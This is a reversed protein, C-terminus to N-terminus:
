NLITKNRFALFIDSALRHYDDVCYIKNEMDITFPVGDLCENCKCCRFCGPHYSKGMAQLIQFYLIDLIKYTTNIQIVKM